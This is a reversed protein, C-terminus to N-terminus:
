LNNSDALLAKQATEKTPFYKIEFVNEKSSLPSDSELNGKKKGLIKIKTSNKENITILM